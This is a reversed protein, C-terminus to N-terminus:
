DSKSRGRPRLIVGLTFLVAAVLALRGSSPEPAAVTVNFRGTLGASDNDSLQFGTTVSIQAVSTPSYIYTPGASLTNFQQTEPNPSISIPANGLDVGADESGIYSDQMSAGPTLPIITVGNDGGDTLSGGFTSSVTYYGASLSVPTDFTFTYPTFGTANDDNTVGISYHVNPDVDLEVENLTFTVGNSLTYNVPNSSDLTWQNNGDFVLPVNMSAGGSQVELSASNSVQAMAMLSTTLLLGVAATLKMM